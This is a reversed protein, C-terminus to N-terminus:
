RVRQAQRRLGSHAGGRLKPPEDLVVASRSLLRESRLRFLNVLVPLLLVLLAFLNPAAAARSAQASREQMSVRGRACVGHLVGLAVPGRRAVLAALGGAGGHVLRNRVVLHKRLDLRTGRAAHRTRARSTAATAGRMGRRRSDRLWAHRARCAAVPM